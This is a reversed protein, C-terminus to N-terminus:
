EAILANGNDQASKVVEVSLTGVNILASAKGRVKSSAKVTAEVSITHDGTGVDPAIFNFHNASTSDLLNDIDDDSFTCETEPDIVGDPETEGEPITDICHDLIGQETLTQRQCRANFVVTGPAVPQGDIKVLVEVGACAETVGRRGRQTLIGSQLSVGILLSKKNGPVKLTTSMIEKTESGEGAAIDLIQLDPAGNTAGSFTSAPSAFLSFSLLSSVTLLTYTSIKSM